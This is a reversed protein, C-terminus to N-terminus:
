FMTGRSKFALVLRHLHFSYYKNNLVLPPGMYRQCMVGGGGGGGGKFLRALPKFITYNGSWQVRKPNGGHIYSVGAAIITPNGSEIVKQVFLDTLKYCSMGLKSVTQPALWIGMPLCDSAEAYSISVWLNVVCGQPQLFILPGDYYIELEHNTKYNFIFCLWSINPTLHFHDPIMDDSCANITSFYSDTCRCAPLCLQDHLNSDGNTNNAHGDM